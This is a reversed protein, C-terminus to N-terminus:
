RISLREMGVGLEDGVPGFADHSENLALGRM